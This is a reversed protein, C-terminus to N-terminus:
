KGPLTPNAKGGTAKGIIANLVTVMEGVDAGDNLEEISFQNGFTEVVLGALANVSEDTLEDVNLEKALRVAMKLLRWPVFSRTYTKVVENDEGYLTIQMPTPVAM